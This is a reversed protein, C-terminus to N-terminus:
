VLQRDKTTMPSRLSADTEASHRSSTKKRKTGRARLLYRTKCEPCKWPYFGFLPYVRTQLFGVRKM